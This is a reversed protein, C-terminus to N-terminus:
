RPTEGKAEEFSLEAIRSHKRDPCAVMLIGGIYDEVTQLLKLPTALIMHFGFRHFAEMAARTFEADARDFAEDLIVTGFKPYTVGDRVVTARKAQAVTAGMGTLRYRLAAALCFSSLKQAQGGSLGEASDYVAGRTDDPTIEVGLFKVHKRTDLRLDRERPTTNDSITIDDIVAKLKSFRAESTAQDDDHLSGALADNLKAIFDRAVAPQAEKVEIRLYNPGYFSVEALSENIPVISTRTKATAESLLRRLRGLHRDTQERLLRRFDAEFRPLDDDELRDLEALFDGRWQLDPHLDGRRQPWQDVYKEMSTRVSNDLGGIKTTLRTIQDSLEQQLTRQLEDITSRQIRRTRTDVRTALRASVDDTLPETNELVQQAESRASQADELKTELGGIKLTLDTHENSKETIRATAVELRKQLEALQENDDILRDLMVEATGLNSLASAVDILSFDETELLRKCTTVRGQLHSLNAEFRERKDVLVELESNKKTILTTLEDIKDDVNGSLVWRSRDNISHRDDKIQRTKNKTQGELTVAKPAARFEDLTEACAHDFRDSLQTQLWNHYRGQRVVLKTSLSDKAFPRPTDNEMAATVRVYELKANLHTTDVAQSVKRYHEDPVILTRAFGGLLREAAPQWRLHDDHMYIEDAVFPLEKLPIGTIDVIKQRARLLRADMSSRYKKIIQLEERSDRIAKETSDIQAYITGRRSEKEAIESRADEVENRLSEAILSFEESNTPVPTGDGLQNLLGAYAGAQKQVHELENRAKDCQNRAAQVGADGVGHIQANVTDKEANLADLESKVQSREAKKAEKESAFREVDESAFSVRKDAMFRLLGAAEEKAHTQQEILENARNISDRMPTLHAIQDRATLVTSHATQLETFTTAATEAIEFTEPEPLMFSRMLHNLDGLTKASQTRHLLALAGDDPIGLQKRLAAIFPAHSRNIAFADQHGRKALSIDAENVAIEEFETLEVQRPLAIFLNKVDAAAHANANLYMIYVASVETGLGDSYTLNVGSWTAGTRLYSRTLEDVELSHERRWAGRCYTILDRGSSKATDSAAANFKRKIPPVLITSVADILTSKGSGSAGTILYGERAVHVTHLNNFTGWNYVQIRALRFQGEITAIM